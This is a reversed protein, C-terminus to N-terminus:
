NRPASAAARRTFVASLQPHENDSELALIERLVGALQTAIARASPFRREPDPDTACLLLRYFFEYRALVPEDAPDPIGDLYRGHETPM